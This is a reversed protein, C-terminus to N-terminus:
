SMCPANYTGLSRRDSGGRDSFETEYIGVSSCTRGDATVMATWSTISINLDSSSGIKGRLSHAVGERWIWPSGSVEAKATIDGLLSRVGHWPTFRVWNSHCKPSYRLELLGSDRGSETKASGSQITRADATCISAAPDKGDCSEGYCSLQSSATAVPASLAASGVFIPLAMAFAAATVKIPSTKM